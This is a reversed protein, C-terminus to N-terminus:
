HHPLPARSEVPGPAPRLAWALAAALLDGLILALRVLLAFAAATAPPLVDTLALAQVAERVGLGAPVAVAALGAAWGLAASALLAPALDLGVPEIARAISWNALALLLWSANAAALARLALGARAPARRGSPAVVDAARDRGTSPLARAALWPALVLLGVAAVTASPAVALRWLLYALGGVLAGGAAVLAVTATSALTAAPLPIGCRGALVAIGGLTWVKGPLYKGLAAVFVLHYAQALGVRHGLLALLDRWIAAVLVTQLMILAVGLAFPAPQFTLLRQSLDAWSGLLSQALFALAAVVAIASLAGVGRRV